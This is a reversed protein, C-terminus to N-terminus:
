GQWKQLLSKERQPSLGTKLEKGDLSRYWALSDQVTESMPRFTLGAKIAKSVDKRVFGRMESDPPVWLPLDTWPSVENKSLFDWDVWVLEANSNVTEKVTELFQGMTLQHYPGTVNYTGYHQQEVALITWRALDRVDICQIPDKPTGPALVRGGRFVRVPWYTFRDTPDGPGVVLGSRILTSREGFSAKVYNESLVKMGGYNKPTNADVEPNELQIVEASEDQDVKSNDAYASISSIYVYHGVNPKLLEASDKVWRPVFGSNDIVADWKRGKLAKLDDKRDGLLTEIQPFMEPASKGRNFITVEHGRGLATEVQHPGIFGTGGLILIKLPRRVVNAWVPATLCAATLALFERRKMSEAMETKGATEKPSSTEGKRCFWPMAHILLRGGYSAQRFGQHTQGTDAGFCSIPQGVIKEVGGAVLDIFHDCTQISNARLDSTTRGTAIVGFRFEARNTTGKTPIRGGKADYAVGFIDDGKLSGSLISAEVM